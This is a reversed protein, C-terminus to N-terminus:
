YTVGASCAVAAVTFSTAGGLSTTNIRIYRHVTGSGLSIRLAQLGTTSNGSFTFTGLTVPSTMGVVTSGQVTITASTATGVVATIHLYAIGGASGAAGFDVVTGAGTANILGTHILFGAVLREKQVWKGSLALLGEIPAEYTLQGNFTTDFTFSPPRTGSTDLLVTTYVTDTAALRDGMVDAIAGAAIGSFLGRHELTAAPDGAIKNVADSQLNSHELATTETSLTFGSTQTSLDFGDVLVRSQWAKVAM